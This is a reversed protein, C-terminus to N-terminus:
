PNHNFDYLKPKYGKARARLICAPTPHTKEFNEGREIALHEPAGIALRLQGDVEVVQVVIDGGIVVYEGSQRGLTLM